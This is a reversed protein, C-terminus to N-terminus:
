GMAHISFEASLYWLKADPDHVKRTGIIRMRYKKGSASFRRGNLTTIVTGLHTDAESPMESSSVVDVVVVHKRFSPGTQFERSLESAMIYTRIFPPQAGSKIYTDFVSLNTAARLASGIERQIAAYDM